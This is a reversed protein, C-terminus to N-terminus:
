QWGGQRFSARLDDCMRFSRQNLQDLLKAIDAGDNENGGVLAWNLTRIRNVAAAGGLGSNSIEAGRYFRDRQDILRPMASM